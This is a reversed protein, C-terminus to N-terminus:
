RGHSREVSGCDRNHSCWTDPINHKVKFLPEKKPRPMPDAFGKPTPIMRVKTRNFLPPNKGHHFVAHKESQKPGKKPEGAWAKGGERIRAYLSRVGKDRLISQVPDPSFSFKGLVATTNVKGAKKEGPPDASSAHKPAREKGSKKEAPKGFSHLPASSNPVVAPTVVEQAFRHFASDEVDSLNGTANAAVHTANSAALTSPNAGPVGPLSHNARKIHYIVPEAVEEGEAPASPELSRGQEMAPVASSSESPGRDFSSRLARLTSVAGATAVADSPSSGHLRTSWLKGKQVPLAKKAEVGGDVKPPQAAAAEPVPIAASAKRPPKEHRIVDGDDGPSPAGLVLTIGWFALFISELRRLLVRGPRGM